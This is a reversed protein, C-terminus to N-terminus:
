PQCIRQGVIMNTYLLVMDNTGVHLTIYLSGGMSPGRKIALELDLARIPRYYAYKRTWDAPVTINVYDVCYDVRGDGLQLGWWGSKKGEVRTQSCTRANNDIAKDATYDGNTTSQAARSGSVHAM